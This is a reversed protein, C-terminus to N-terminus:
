RCTPAPPVLLRYVPYSEHLQFEGIREAGSPGLRRLLNAMGESDLIMFQPRGDLHIAHLMREQMCASGSPLKGSYKHLYFFLSGSTIDSWVISDQALLASPANATVISRPLERVKYVTVSVLAAVAIAPLLRSSRASPFPGAPSGLSFLALSLVFLASPIWYYPGTIERSLLLVGSLGCAAMASGAVSWGIRKQAAAVLVILAAVLSVSTVPWAYAREWLYYALNSEILPWDFRPPASDGGAYTSAIFFGTNLKTAILLPLLGVSFAAITGGIVGYRPLGGTQSLLAPLLLFAASAVVAINALRVSILLAAVGGWAIGLLLRGRGLPRGIGLSLLVLIPILALTWPVSYSSSTEAALLVQTAIILFQITALAGLASPTIALALCACIALAGAAIVMMSRVDRQPSFLSLLFATGPPYQLIVSNTEQRYHHCHPAIMQYWEDAPAASRRGVEVLYRVESADVRTDLGAILGKKRFLEAQRLYGFNDCGIALGPASQAAVRFILFAGFLVAVVVLLWPGFMPLPARPGPEGLSPAPDGLGKYSPDKMRARLLTLPARFWAM